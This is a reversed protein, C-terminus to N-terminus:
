PEPAVQGPAVLPRRAASRARALSEASFFRPMLKITAPLVFVEALFAVAMTLALMGGFWASPKYESLLLVAFGCSNIIATTLSARGEHLAALEIAQDTGAGAATERRYRSIFHITDDDVIGLAVSAVMITAVNLSIDLWGMIGLVALVPFLNPVIALLGFRASRFVVFIVGFVTLFATGFSSLQSIVLYHDLTSFLRGSGTVTPTIPSGRFADRALREAAHIQEFVLDSSMSALKISIQGRSFDSSVLRELEHRGEDSLSFVFLEQAIAEAGGPIVAAAPDGGHLEQNTRKVYDAVSTTKRVYPLRTLGRQLGDIRRMADPSKLSDPPGELLVQFSYIGSLDHDIVAASRSLPHKPSFFNIHNTDVRLRLIGLSAVASILAAVIVVLGPRTMAFRAVRRMPEVLHREQPALAPEPRMFGLLTPVLVLSVAFDVMVGVASGVGFARVAVVESTALSVLGLATTGSAGLLPAALHAVTRTFAAEHSGAVRREHDYHQMIHVDDAIALVVILPTIMSGLVNYSYGMLSYLGLTWLWSVTIAIATLVIKRWSRFMVFIALLTLGLMPPAFTRTNALTVRNYTESIELSGNYFAEMGGPLSRNVVRHIRDIVGARVQDIRDEDFNVVIAAVRGDQSVLDGRVLPEGLARARVAAPDTDVARELFPRIEIGSEEGAVGPTARVFNANALSHVRQVTPIREIDATAQRLFELGERTFLRDGRVAVILTRTGGFERRFREYDQFVPDQRSFWATLDNDISTIDVRPALAMAGIISLASLPLRWRYLFAALAASM